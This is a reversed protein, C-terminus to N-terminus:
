GRIQRKGQRMLSRGRDVMAGPGTAGPGSGRSSTMMAAPGEVPVTGLTSGAVACTTSRRTTCPITGSDPALRIRDM